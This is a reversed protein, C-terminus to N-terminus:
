TYKKEEEEDKVSKIIPFVVSGDDGSRGKVPEYQM